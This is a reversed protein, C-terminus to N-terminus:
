WLCSSCMRNYISTPWITVQCYIGLGNSKFQGDVTRFSLSRCNHFQGNIMGCGARCNRWVLIWELCRDTWFFHMEILVKRWAKLLCNIMYTRRLIDIITKLPWIWSLKLTRTDSTNKKWKYSFLVFRFRENSLTYETCIYYAYL